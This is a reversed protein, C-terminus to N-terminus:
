APQTCAQMSLHFVPGLQINCCHVATHAFFHQQVLLLKKKQMWVFPFKPARSCAGCFCVGEKFCPNAHARWSLFVFFGGSFSNVKWWHKVSVSSGHSTRQNLRSNMEQPSPLANFAWTTRPFLLVFDNLFGKGVNFRSRSNGDQLCCKRHLLLWQCYM